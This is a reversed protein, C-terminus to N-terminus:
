SVPRIADGFVLERAQKATPAYVEVQYPEDPYVLHINMPAEPKIVALGGDALETTAYGKESAITSVREYADAQQYTAVVVYDAGAAGAEADGTLYRVYTTGDATRTYEIRAGTQDGAWYVPTDIEGAAARLETGSVVTPGEPELAGTGQQGTAAAAPEDAATGSDTSRLVWVFAAVAAFVIVAVM